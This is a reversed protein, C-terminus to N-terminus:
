GCREASDEEYKLFEERSALIPLHGVNDETLMVINSKVNLDALWMSNM